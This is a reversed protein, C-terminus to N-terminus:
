KKNERPTSGEKEEVLEMLKNIFMGTAQRATPSIHECEVENIIELFQERLFSKELPMDPTEYIQQILASLHREIENLQYRSAYIKLEVGLPESDDVEMAVPMDGCFAFLFGLSKQNEVSVDKDNQIFSLKRVKKKM